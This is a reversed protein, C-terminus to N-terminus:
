LSAFGAITDRLKNMDENLRKTQDEKEKIGEELRKIEDKRWSDDTERPQEM